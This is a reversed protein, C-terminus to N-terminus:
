NSQCTSEFTCNETSTNTVQDEKDERPAVVGVDEALSIGTALMADGEDGVALHLYSQM